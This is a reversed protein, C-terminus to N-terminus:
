YRVKIGVRSLLQLRVRRWKPELFYRVRALLAALGRKPEAVILACFPGNREAVAADELILRGLGAPDAESWRIEPYLPALLNGGYGRFHLTQFGVGLQEVIEGSRIAESPDANEVPYPLWDRTRIRPDLQSHFERIERVLEDTWEHRSPGIYEDLYVLGGPKLARAVASLVRELKAVHHLSQQFFVIDYTERPLSLRNFDAAFYRIRGAYPAERAAATATALSQISADLGDITGCLDRRIVDREFAGPGCGISLARAFRRRPFRQEFWQIPWQGGLSGNIYERVAPHFMWNVHSYDTAHQRDWFSAATTLSNVDTM